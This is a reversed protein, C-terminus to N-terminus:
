LVWDATGLGTRRPNKAPPAPKHGPPKKDPADFLDPQALAQETNDCLRDLNRYKETLMEVCWLAGVTCDLVENRVTSNPKVWKHVFQGSAPRLIRVESTLQEFFVPPLQSAFHLYGPGATTVRMRGFLTDKAADTGIFWLKAGHKIPRGNLQRVDVLTRGSKISRGDRTEGKTAYVHENERTRCFRYAQHSAYGSDISTAMIPLEGGRAHPYRVSLRDALHQWDGDIFPNVDHIVVYDVVWMEEGRGVGWVVMEFRDGQVDVGAVLFMVDRPCVRLPYSETRQILDRSDGKECEEQYPEGLTTNIFTKLATPDGQAFRRTAALYERVIGPWTAQPSYATWLRFAVHNPVAVPANAPSMFVGDPAIWTGTDPNVWRGSEWVRFYGAQDYIVGCGPCTHGVTDPDHNNWTFGHASKKSLEGGWQLPHEHGCDPCPIHYLFVESAQRVREEIHSLGATKPTTGAVIKPFVAGELRKKALQFPAGEGEIDLDFADLEDLYCTDVSIRRFNKAATGGRLHLMGTLFKKARLTNDRHRHLFSPFIRSMAPVDRLMTDLETKVFEDRDSDSPQWLAQNRKKHSAYYGIAALVMKTYGVRASKMLDVEVIDDHGICDMIARQFPYCRWRAETYSSESSLYFHRDAWESLRMPEEVRLADLGTAVADILRRAVFARTDSSHIPNDM